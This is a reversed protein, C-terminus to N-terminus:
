THDHPKAGPKLAPTAYKMPIAGSPTRTVYVEYLRDSAQTGTNPKLPLPNDSLIGGFFYGALIRRGHALSTLELVGEPTFHGRAKPDPDPVFRTSSGVLSQRPIPEPLIWQRTDQRSSVLVSVDCIFPLGDNRGEATADEFVRSQTSNQTFYRGGIGGFFVRSVERRSANWVVLVPCEYLSMVQGISRDITFGGGQLYIPESYAGIVGPPFVGGFATIRSSGDAPDVDYVVPLDRRHFPRDDLDRGSVADYSSITLDDELTFRRIEETYTQTFAGEFATYAGDFYQGFVLSFTSGELFLEGGTVALRPDTAMRFLKAIEATKAENSASSVICAITQQVPIRVVTGLTTQRGKTDVGYGGVVWLLDTSADYTSQANTTSLACALEGPLDSTDFAWSTNTKVDIVVLSKNPSPFNQGSGKFTHLGARRGGVLLWRGTSTAACAFASMGPFPSKDDPFAREVVEVTFTLANPEVPNPPCPVPVPAHGGEPDPQTAGEPTQQVLRAYELIRAIRKPSLDRTVPMYRPDDFARTLYFPIAGSNFGQTPPAGIYEVSWPPNRCFLEFSFQDVLNIRATMADFLRAYTTLLTQVETWTVPGEPRYDSFVLLSVNREQPAGIEQLDPVKEFAPAFPALFFLQGDLDHLRSPIDALPAISLDVLGFGNTTGGSWRLYLSADNKNITDGPNTPPVTAGPTAGFVPACVVVIDVGPAPAGFRRVYVTSHVGPLDPDAELRHVREDVSIFYGSAAEALLEPGGIDPRTCQLRLPKHTLANLAEDTLALEAIGSAAERQTYDLTGLRTEDVWAELEGLDVVPGEVEEFCLSNALDVVLVKRAPDVKFHAGYLTPSWWDQKTPDQRSPNVDLWRAAPTQVADTELFPGIAAVMRGQRYTSGVTPDNRYADLVFRISLLAYTGRDTQQQVTAALLADLVDSGRPWADVDVELVSCFYGSANSDGGYSGWGYQTNWGRKPLVCDFRVGNLVAPRMRGRLRAGGPLTWGVSLGYIASVGQQYVDLDAIKAMSPADISAFTSSLLPDDHIPVGGPGIISTVACDAFRFRHMGGPDQWPTPRAVGYNTPDNNRTSPDTFFRGALHIRPIDLYSM